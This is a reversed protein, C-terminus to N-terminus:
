FIMNLMKPVITIYITCKLAEAGGPANPAPYFSGFLSVLNLIM